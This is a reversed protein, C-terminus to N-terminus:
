LFPRSQQEAGAATQLLTHQPFSTVVQPGSPDHPQAVPMICHPLLHQLAVVEMQEFPIQQGLPCTLWPPLHQASFLRQPVTQQSSRAFQPSGFFPMQQGKSVCNQEPFHQWLLSTQTFPAHQGFSRLQPPTQQGAPCFHESGEFFVQEAQGGCVTGQRGLEPALM